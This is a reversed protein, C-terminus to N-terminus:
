HSQQVAPRAQVPREYTPDDSDRSGRHSRSLRDTMQAADATCQWDLLVLRRLIRWKGARKEWLDAYRGGVMELTTSGVKKGCSIFYAESHAQEGDLEIAHNTVFHQAVERQPQTPLWFDLFDQTTGNVPGHSDWADDWFASRILAEDLRDVGRTYRLMCASIAQRDLMADIAADRQADTM